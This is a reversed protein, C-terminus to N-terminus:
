KKDEKRAKRQGLKYAGYALGVGAAATAGAGVKWNRLSKATKAAAGKMNEIQATQNAIVQKQNKAATKLKGLAKNAAAENHQITDGLKVINQNAQGLQNKYNSITAEHGSIVKGQNAVIEKTEGLKKKLYPSNEKKLNYGKGATNKDIGQYALDRTSRDGVGKQFNSRAESAAKKKDRAAKQRDTLGIGMKKKMDGFFGFEKQFEQYLRFEQSSLSVSYVKQKM